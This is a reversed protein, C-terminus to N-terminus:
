YGITPASGPLTYRLDFWVATQFADKPANTAVFWPMRWFYAYQVFTSISGYKPDRFLTQNWGGTIEQTSRNQSNPSGRYGYGILTTGNADLAVNRSVYIGGYYVYFLSKGLTWEFGDVTSGSHIPSPSGDARLIFNPAVGFLYRGAGDSYFLNEFIRFNKVIEFNSNFSGGGGTKTFYQQAGPGTTNPNFIKVGNVVGAIEFHARSSPDFALKSIIDPRYNAIKTLGNAVNADLETGTLSSLAAPLTPVGGGGSGGFYQDGNEASVGWTIKESPHFLFRYGPIRGWTLGNLYNVDFEQGYFLDGPLASIQRRNPTMMSWSQGALFEFKDKRVSVWYLRLRLLISNSTVQTNYATDGVGGVFDSEWYGLVHYDKYLSDFRAGIRSNQLSMRNESLRGIPLNNNYPINGFNTALGAGSATSRWTNTADVFGVPTIATNGIRLQLPSDPITEGATGVKPVVQPVAAIGLSSPLSPAVGRPIIPTTSAVEGLNPAKLVNEQAAEAAQAAGTTDAPAAPKDGLAKDVAKQQETLAQQLAEIQKQQQELKARLKALEDSRTSNGTNAQSAPTPPDDAARSAVPAAIAACLVATIVFRLKNM